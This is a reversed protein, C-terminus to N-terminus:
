VKSAAVVHIPDRNDGSPSMDASGNHEDASGTEQPEYEGRRRSLKGISLMQFEFLQHHLRPFLEHVGSNTQKQRATEVVVKDNLGGKMLTLFEVM